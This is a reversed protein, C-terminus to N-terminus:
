SLHRNSSNSLLAIKQLSSKPSYIFLFDASKKLTSKATTNIINIIATREIMYKTNGAIIFEFSTDLM